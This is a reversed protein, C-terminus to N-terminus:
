ALWITIKGIRNLGKERGFVTANAGSGFAGGLSTHKAMNLTVSIILGLSVLAHVIYIIIKFAQM